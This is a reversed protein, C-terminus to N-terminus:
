FNGNKIKKKLIQSEKLFFSPAKIIKIKLQLYFINRFLGNKLILQALFFMLLNDKEV